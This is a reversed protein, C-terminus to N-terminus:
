RTVPQRAPATRPRARDDRWWARARGISAICERAACDEATPSHRAGIRALTRPGLGLRRTPAAMPRAGVRRPRLPPRRLSGAGVGLPRGLELLGTDMGNRPRAPATPGGRIAAAAPRVARRGGPGWVGAARNARCGWPRPIIPLIPIVASIAACGGVIAVGAPLSRGVPLRPADEPCRVPATDNSSEDLERGRRKM